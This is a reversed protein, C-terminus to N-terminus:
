RKTIVGDHCQEYLQATRTPVAVQRGLEEIWAVILLEYVQPLTTVGRDSVM